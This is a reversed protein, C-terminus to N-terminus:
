VMTEYSRSRCSFHSHQYRLLCPIATPSQIIQEEALIANAILFSDLALWSHLKVYGQNVSRSAIISKIMEDSLSESTEYHKGMEKLVSENYCWNELMQSPAEVFDRAVATGSFRAFQTSSCLSHFRPLFFRITLLNAVNSCRDRKRM